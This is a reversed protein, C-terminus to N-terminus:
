SGPAGTRCANRRARASEFRRGAYFDGDRFLQAEWGHEGHSRLECIIQRGDRRLSWLPEGPNNVRPSLPKANPLYFPDDLWAQRMTDRSLVPCTVEMAAAPVDTAIEFGGIGLHPM